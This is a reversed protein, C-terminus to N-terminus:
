KRIRNQYKLSVQRQSKITIYKPKKPPINYFHSISLKYCQPLIDQSYNNAAIDQITSQYMALHHQCFKYLMNLGDNYPIKRCNYIECYDYPFIPFRANEYMPIQQLSIHKQCYDYKFLKTVSIHNTCNKELCKHPPYTCNFMNRDIRILTQCRHCNIKNFQINNSIINTQYKSYTKNFNLCTCNYHNCNIHALRITKLYHALEKDDINFKKQIVTLKKKWARSVNKMAFIIDYKFCECKDELAFTIIYEVLELPINLRFWPKYYKGVSM